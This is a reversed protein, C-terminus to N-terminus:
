NDMSTLNKKPKHPPPVKFLICDHRRRENLGASIKDKKVRNADWAAAFTGSIDAGWVANVHYQLTISDFICVPLWGIDNNLTESCYVKWRDEPPLKNIFTRIAPQFSSLDLRRETERVTAPWGKRRQSPWQIIKAPVKHATQLESENLPSAAGLQSNVSRNMAKKDIGQNLLGPSGCFQQSQSKGELRQVMNEMANWRSDQKLIFIDAGDGM